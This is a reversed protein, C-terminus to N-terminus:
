TPLGADDCGAQGPHRMPQFALGHVQQVPGEAVFGFHEYVAMAPLSANVTFPGRHGAAAAGEQMAQWLRRSLGQGQWAPAVFLHFLHGKDRSAIFGALAGDQAELLWFRYRPDALYGAEATESVSTRFPETGAGDPSLFFAPALQAILASIATADEARGERLQLTNM